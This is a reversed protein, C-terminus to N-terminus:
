IHILSLIWGDTVITLGRPQSERGVKARVVGDPLTTEELVEVMTGVRLTGAERSDLSAGKRVLREANICARQNKSVLTASCLESRMTDSGSRRTSRGGTKTSRTSRRTSAPHYDWTFGEIVERLQTRFASGTSM